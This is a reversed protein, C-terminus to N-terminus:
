DKGGVDAAFRREFWDSLFPPLRNGLFVMLAFQWPFTLAGRRREVGAKIIAAAKDAVQRADALIIVEM